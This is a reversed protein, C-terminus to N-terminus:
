GRAAPSRGKLPDGPAGRRLHIHLIKGTTTVEPAAREVELVHSERWVQAMVRQTDPGSLADLFAHAVAGADVAGVRPHVLLRLRPRGQATEEEVLQYDAVSGGFRAPLVEELVRVVDYDLFTMGAATLKEFSRLHQVHTDWGLADLPCGCARRTIDARDGLSVNLLLVPATPQLTTILLASPPLGRPPGDHAPQIFAQLDHFHHMDDAAEPRLCAYSMSGTEISGYRPFGVAGARRLVHIRADTTPEGILTFRAGALDIGMGMAAHCLRVASSTFAYLHPIRRSRLVDSMWRIIPLPEQPPVYEPRPLPRGAALSAWRMLNVSWRYRPHLDRAYPDTQSFWRAFPAGMMAFEAQRVAAGGGPIEWDASQWDTGGYAVRMVLGTDVAFTRVFQLSIHVPTGEGRSGSSRALFHFQTLPNQFEAPQVHVVASGRRIPRRGKFEDITVYVGQRFLVSLAGEIGEAQVLRVVDGYECGAARLLRLYPSGPRGYVARALLDLFTEDRRAMRDRLVARAADPDIPHRLMSPLTFLFSAGMRVDNLSIAM